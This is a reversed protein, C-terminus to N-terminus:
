SREQGFSSKMVDDLKTLREVLTKENGEEAHLTIEWSYGFTTKFLKVSVPHLTRQLQVKEDRTEPM